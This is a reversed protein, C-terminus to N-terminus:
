RGRSTWNNLVAVVANNDCRCCVVKGAWRRGWVSSAIVIPFMEKTAINGQKPCATDRWEVQFWEAEWYAGCGWSGSADSTPIVEPPKDGGVSMLSM